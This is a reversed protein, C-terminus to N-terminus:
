FSFRDRIKGSRNKIPITIAITIRFDSISKSRCIAPRNGVRSSGTLEPVHPYGSLLFRSWIPQLRFPSARGKMRGHQVGAIGSNRWQNIDTLTKVVGHLVGRNAYIITLQLTGSIRTRFCPNKCTIGPLPHGSPCDPATAPGSQPTPPNHLPHPFFLSVKVSTISSFPTGTM